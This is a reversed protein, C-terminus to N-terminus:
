DQFQDRPLKSDWPLRLHLRIVVAVKLLLSTTDSGSSWRKNKKRSINTRKCLWHSQLTM